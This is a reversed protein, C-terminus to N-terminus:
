TGEPRYLCASGMHGTLNPRIHEKVYKVAQLYKELHIGTEIGMGQLMYLLDETATNGAAGPAFPCGGLGGVSTEFISVGLELAAYINALGQGRTDHLHLGISVKNKCVLTDETVMRVLKQVEIPTAVGITDCLMVSKCGAGVAAEVLNIVREHPIDGEYPCGFATAADLRVELEPFTKIITTLQQISEAVTKNVNARNHLESVSIVYAVTKIGAKLANEAGRLNPVLAIPHLVNSYQKVAYEAVQAADAMQPIAKPSVFSTVEMESIGAQVLRDILAQKDETAIPESINQLGDRPGVEIVKVKTPFPM